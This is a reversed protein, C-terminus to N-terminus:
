IKEYSALVASSQQPVYIYENHILVNSNELNSIGAYNEDAIVFFNLKIIEPVFLKLKQKQPNHVVFLTKFEPSEFAPSVDSESENNIMYAIYDPQQTNGYDSSFDKISLDIIIEDNENISEPALSHSGFSSYLTEPSDWKGPTKVLKINLHRTDNWKYLDFMEIDEKKFSLESVGKKDFRLEIPNNVPNDNEAHVEGALYLIESPKGNIFKLNLKKLEPDKFSIYKPLHHSDTSPLFTFGHEIHKKNLLRFAPISRRMKILGKYYVLLEEALFSYDDKLRNWRIKNTFDNSCYSNEHFFVTEEEIDTHESTMTRHSEADYEAKPKTRLIEDGGHLIIKGQSTFLIAAAFKMLRLREKKTQDKVSINLKDWLTLGDHISVFNLCDSSSKAFLNYPEFFDNKNFPLSSQNFTKVAGIIGSALKGALWTNGHIFGKYHGNGALADRFTDNFIGINVSDFNTKTFADEDLDTFTWAEGHLILENINEPNYIKGIDKRIQRMTEKDHFSMLDFRFGDIHYEEVYFKLVDKILKRVQKRRSELTPGAGTHTSISYAKDFRYYCAPAVNELIHAQYTHNFVVDLIIGIGANHLAQILERFEFIRTYPNSPDTSYRGEPTFYNLPDYGWNYRSEEDYKGSYSRDKENQTFAKNVPMLQVHTIGLEKLYGIKEIFGKFTGATHSNTVGPQITFDRVNIEYVIIDNENAIHDFNSYNKTFSEPKVVKSNMNIVAGKGTKDESFRDFLAMSKTYPDLAFHEIGYAKIKYQYFLPKEENYIFDNLLLSTEWIGPEIKLRQLEISNDLPNLENDYLILEVKVAPPSWIRFLIKHEQFIVGLEYSESFFHSDLIGGVSPDLVINAKENEITIIYNETLQFDGEIKLVLQNISINYIHKVENKHNHVKIKSFDNLKKKLIIHIENESILFAHKIFVYRAGTSSYYDSLMNITRGQM